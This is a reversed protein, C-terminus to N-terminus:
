QYIGFARNIGDGIIQSASQVIESIERPAVFMAPAGPSIIDNGSQCLLRTDIVTPVGISIVPFGLTDIDLSHRPNGLGSGPSIGTNSIQVTSGLRKPSRSALADIAIVADPAIMECLGKVTIAADVGSRSAIGPTCVVIESCDLTKFFSPDCDKIHLTARVRRASECGIADPTLADNGLGVVLLREPFIDSADAIYCLERALEDAADDLGEADLLDMRGLQLTDYIGMPRGISEAGARTTIKMREWNGGIGIERKYDVGDIDTDARRRECALDTYPYDGRYNRETYYEYM